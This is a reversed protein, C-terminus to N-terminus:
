IYSPTLSRLEGLSMEHNELPIVSFRSHVNTFASTNTVTSWEFKELWELQSDSM